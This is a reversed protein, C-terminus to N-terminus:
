RGGGAKRGPNITRMCTLISQRSPILFPTSRRYDPYGPFMRPFFIWDELVVYIIDLMFWVAFAILLTASPFLLALSLYVLGLWLVGPHRVLAYTGTTVLRNGAGKAVYTSHFPIEIFLSYILLALSLPLLCYGLPITFFPLDFRPYSVCVMVTAYLLLGVAAVGAAQKLVAINKLSLWDFAYALVFGAAGTLVYEM